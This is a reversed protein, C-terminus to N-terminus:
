SPNATKIRDAVLQLADDFSAVNSLEGDSFELNLSDEVLSVLEFFGLSDVEKELEDLRSLADIDNPDLRQRLGSIVEMLPTM